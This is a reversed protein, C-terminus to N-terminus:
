GRRYMHRNNNLDIDRTLRRVAWALVIRECRLIEAVITELRLRFEDDAVVDRRFNTIPEQEFRNM